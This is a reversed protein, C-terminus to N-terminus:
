WSLCAYASPETREFGGERHAVQLYAVAAHTRHAVVIGDKTLLATRFSIAMDLLFIADVLYSAVVWGGSAPRDFGLRFTVEVVSWITVFSVFLDWM